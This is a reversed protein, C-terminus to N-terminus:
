LTLAEDCGHGSLEAPRDADHDGDQETDGAAHGSYNSLNERPLGARLLAGRSCATRRSTSSRPLRGTRWARRSSFAGNAETSSPVRTVGFPSGAPRAGRRHEPSRSSHRVPAVRSGNGTNTASCGTPTTRRCARRGKMARWGWAPDVGGGSREKSRVCGPRAEVESPMPRTLQRPGRVRSARHRSQFAIARRLRAWRRM